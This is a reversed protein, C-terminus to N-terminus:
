KKGKQYDAQWGKYVESITQNLKGAQTTKQRLLKGEKSNIDRPGNPLKQYAPPSMTAGYSKVNSDSMKLPYGSDISTPSEFFKTGRTMAREFNYGETEDSIDYLSGYDSNDVILSPEKDTKIGQCKWVMCVLYSSGIVRNM